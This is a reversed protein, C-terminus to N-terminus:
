SQASEIHPVCEADTAVVEVVEEYCCVVFHHANSLFYPQGLDEIFSSEEIKFLGGKEPLIGMLTGACEETILRFAQVSKFTLRWHKEGEEEALLLVLGSTDFTLDQLELARPWPACIPLNWPTIKM